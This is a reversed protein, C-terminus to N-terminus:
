AVKTRPTREIVFSVPVSVDVGDKFLGTTKGLSELAQRKDYFKLAIGHATQRVESIAGATDDDLQDSDMFEAMPVRVTKRSKGNVVVQDVMKWRMAKRMDSFGIKALEAVIRENTVELKKFLPARAAEIMAIVRDDKLLRAGAISASNKAYGAAIASKSIHSTALYEAVFRKRKDEASTPAKKDKASKGRTFAM